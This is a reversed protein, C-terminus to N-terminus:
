MNLYIIQNGKIVNLNIVIQNVSGYILSNSDQKATIIFNDIGLICLQGNLINFNNNNIDKKIINNLVDQTKESLEHFIERLKGLFFERDIENAEDSVCHKIALILLQESGGFSKVWKDNRVVKGLPEQGKVMKVHSRAEACSWKESRAQQILELVQKNNEVEDDSFKATAIEIAVTPSLEHRVNCGTM